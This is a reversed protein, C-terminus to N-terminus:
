KVASLWEICVPKGVSVRQGTDTLLGTNLDRKFVVIEHSEQNAVLLFNGTPDFNFNRPKNGLTPQHGALTLNGTAPDIKFIALTNSEGRNSAYLFKGDPSIRIDASAIAGKYGAPHTSIHQVLELHPLKAASYVSIAGSLEEILYSFKGNPHFVFHRPGAGAATNVFYPPPIVNLRGSVHDVAYTIVQDLGLDAVYLYKNDPSFVTCHVHPDLQTNGDASVISVHKM